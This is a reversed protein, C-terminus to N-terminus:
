SMFEALLEKDNMIADVAEQHTISNFNRRRLVSAWRQLEAMNVDKPIELPKLSAQEVTQPRRARNKPEKKVIELMVEQSEEM